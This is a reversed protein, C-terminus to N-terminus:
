AIPPSLPPSSFLTNQCIHTKPKARQFVSPLSSVLHIWLTLCHAALSGSSLGLYQMPMPYPSPSSSDDEEEGFQRQGEQM